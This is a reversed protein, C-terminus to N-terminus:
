LSHQYDFSVSNANIIPVSLWLHTKLWLNVVESALGETTLYCCSGEKRGALPLPSTFGITLVLWLSYLAKTSRKQSPLCDAEHTQRWVEPATNLLLLIWLHPKRIGSASSVATRKKLLSRQTMKNLLNSYIALVSRRSVLRWEWPETGNTIECKSVIAM